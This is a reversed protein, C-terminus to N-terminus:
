GHGAPRGHYCTTSDRKAVRISYKGANLDPAAFKGSEDSTLLLPQLLNGGTIEIRAGIVVAGSSRQRHRFDHRRASSPCIGPLAAAV